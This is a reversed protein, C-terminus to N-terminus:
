TQGIQSPVKPTLGVGGRGGCLPPGVKLSTEQEAWPGLAISNASGAEPLAAGWLVMHCTFIRRPPLQKHLHHDRGTM